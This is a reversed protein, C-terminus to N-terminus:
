YCKMAILVVMSKFEVKKKKKKQKAKQFREAVCLHYVGFYKLLIISTLQKKESFM